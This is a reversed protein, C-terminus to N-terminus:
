LLICLLFLSVLLLLHPGKFSCIDTCESKLQCLRLRCLRCWNYNKVSNSSDWDFWNLVKSSASGNPTKEIIISYFFVAFDSFFEDNVHINESLKRAVDGTSIAKNTPYRAKWAKLRVFNVRSTDFQLGDRPLGLYQEVIQDNIPIDSLGKGCRLSCSASDFKGM